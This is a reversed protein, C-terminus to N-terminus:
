QPETPPLAGITNNQPTRKEKSNQPPYIGGGSVNEMDFNICDSDANEWHCKNLAKVANRSVELKVFNGDDGMLVVSGKSLSTHVVKDINIINSRGIKVFKRSAEGSSKLWKEVQSIGCPFLTKSNKGYYVNTYHGEAKFYLVRNLIAIFIEDRKLLKLIM